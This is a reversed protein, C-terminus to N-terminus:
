ITHNDSFKFNLICKTGLIFLKIIINLIIKDYNNGLYTNLLVFVIGIILIDNFTTEIM